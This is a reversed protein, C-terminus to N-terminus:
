RPSVTKKMNNIFEEVTSKSLHDIPTEYNFRPIPPTDTSGKKELLLDLKAREEADPLLSSVLLEQCVWPSTTSITNLSLSSNQKDPIYFFAASSRIVETLAMSLILLLNKTVETCPNCYYYDDGAPAYRNKLVNITLYVDRWVESDIFFHYNPLEHTMYEKIKKARIADQHLHSIFIVNETTPFLRRKLAVADITEVNGESDEIICELIIDHLKRRDATSIANRTNPISPKFRRYYISEKKIIENDIRKKCTTVIDDIEKKTLVPRIKRSPTM